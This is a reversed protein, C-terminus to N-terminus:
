LKIIGFGVYLHHGNDQMSKIRFCFIAELGLWLRDKL